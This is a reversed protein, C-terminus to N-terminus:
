KVIKLSPRSTAPKEPVKDGSDALHLDRAQAPDFPFSMGQGNERAYIAIVIHPAQPKGDPDSVSGPKITDFAYGGNHDTGVRGFGKFSSNPLARKDQPDSFRGQADAQWIELMCDPVPLGDGDYVTGEVAPRREATFTLAPVVLLLRDASVRLSEFPKVKPSFPLTM